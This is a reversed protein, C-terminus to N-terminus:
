GFILAIAIFHDISLREKSGCYACEGGFQQYLSHIQELRYGVHHNNKERSRRKRTYSASLARFHDPNQCFRQSRREQVEERHKAYYERIRTRQAALIQERNEQYHKKRQHKIKGRNAEQYKLNYQRKYGSNQQHFRQNCRRSTERVKQYKKKHWEPTQLIHQRYMEKQCEPCGKNDKRRLTKSTGKWEHGRKCLSGLYFKDTDFDIIDM